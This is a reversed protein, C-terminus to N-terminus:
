PLLEYRLKDTGKLLTKQSNFKKMKMVTKVVGTQADRVVGLSQGSRLSDQLVSVVSKEKHDYYRQGKEITKEIWSKPVGRDAAQNLAHKSYKITKKSYIKAPNFGLKRASYSIEM